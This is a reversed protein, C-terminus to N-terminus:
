YTANNFINKTKNKGGGKKEVGGGGGGGDGGLLAPPPACHALEPPSTLMVERIDMVLAFVGWIVM